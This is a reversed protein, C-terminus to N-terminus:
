KGEKRLKKSKWEKMKEKKEEFKVAKESLKDIDKEKM